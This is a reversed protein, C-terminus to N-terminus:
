TRGVYLVGVFNLIQDYNSNSSPSTLHHIMQSWVRYLNAAINARQNLTPKSTLVPTSTTSTPISTTGLITKFHKSYQPPVHGMIYELHRRFLTPGFKKTLHDAMNLTTDVQSLLILDQRVWECLVHYQIDMPRTQPTPKQAKAMAICADNDKYLITAAVQLVGLYWLASCVFLIETRSLL